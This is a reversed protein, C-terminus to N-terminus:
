TLRTRQAAHLVPLEIETAKKFNRAEIPRIAVMVLYILFALVATTLIMVLVTLLAAGMGPPVGRAEDEIEIAKARDEANM